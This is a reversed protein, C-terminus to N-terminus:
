RERDRDHPSKPKPSPSPQELYAKMRERNREEQSMASRGNMGLVQGITRDLRIRELLQDQRMSDLRQQVTRRELMQDLILQDRQAQDRKAAEWAEFANAEKVQQAKGSLRDWLGKLGTRLREQRAANDELWRKEQVENLRDRESRHHAALRKAEDVLPQREEAQRDKMEDALENLRPSLRDRLAVKTEEVGALEAPDGLRERVEKTRVGAYKAIAYTEGTYDIAVHGRRDGRAIIFGHDMLAAGFAKASDSQEWAKQFVQKIERPDRGGRMAQQWEDQNFSLPDRLHPDRLGDPLDWGHELHIEKSLETLKRKYHPLNIATMSEADIRSWVVHAHRRGEKEHFVIARPQGKLGLREEAADAAREFAATSVPELPPPNLSLSFLFQQCKTGKAIAHAENFAGHLDDSIFGRMEHIEVHENEAKLLHSALQIAGGRQSGKLIM